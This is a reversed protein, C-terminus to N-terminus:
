KKRGRKKKDIKKLAKEVNQIFGRQSLWSGLASGIGTGVAPLVGSLITEIWGM